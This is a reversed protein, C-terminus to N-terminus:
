STCRFLTFALAGAAGDSAPPLGTAAVDIPQVKYGGDSPVLAAGTSALVNELTPILLEASHTQHHAHHRNREGASRRCITVGLIDGLITDIAERVDANVFNLTVDGGDSIQFKSDSTSKSASAAKGHYIPGALM